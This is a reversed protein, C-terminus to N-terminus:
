HLPIASSLLALAAVRFSFTPTLNSFGNGMIGFPVILLFCLANWNCVAEGDKM